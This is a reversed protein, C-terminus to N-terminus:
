NTMIEYQDLLVEKNNAAINCHNAVVKGVHLSNDYIGRCIYLPHDKEFGGIIPRQIATQYGNSPQVGQQRMRPYLQHQEIYQNIVDPQAWHVMQKSTLANYHKMTLQKGGYTIICADRDIQGPHVGFNLYESQCVHLARKSDKLNANVKNPNNFSDEYNVWHFIKSQNCSQKQAIKLQLRQNQRQLEQIQQTMTNIQQQLKVFAQQNGPTAIVQQVQALSSTAFFLTCAGFLIKKM